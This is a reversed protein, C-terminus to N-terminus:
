AQTGKQATRKRETVINVALIRLGALAFSAGILAGTDAILTVM